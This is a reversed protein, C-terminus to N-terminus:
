DKDAVVVRATALTGEYHFSKVEIRLNQCAKEFRGFIAKEMLLVCDPMEALLNKLGGENPPAEDANGGFVQEGSSGVSIEWKMVGDPGIAGPQGRALKFPDIENEGKDRLELLGYNDSLEMFLEHPAGSDFMFIYSILTRKGNGKSFVKEIKGGTIVAIKGAM